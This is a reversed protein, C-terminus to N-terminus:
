VPWGTTYDYSKLGDVDANDRLVKIAEKHGWSAQHFPQGLDFAEDGVNRMQELTLTHVVDANDRFEITKGTEGKQIGSLARSHCSMVNIFDRLGRLQITIGQGPVTIDAFLRRDREGNILQKVTPYVVNSAIYEEPYRKVTCTAHVIDDVVSYVPQSIHYEDIPYQYETADIIPLISVLSFSLSQPSDPATEGDTYKDLIAQVTDKSWLFPTIKGLKVLAWKM